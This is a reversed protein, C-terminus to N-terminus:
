SAVNSRRAVLACAPPSMQALREDLARLAVVVADTARWPAKEPWGRDTGLTAVLLQPRSRSDQTGVTLMQHLRALWPRIRDPTHDLGSWTSGVLPLSEAAVRV